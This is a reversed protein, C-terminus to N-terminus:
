HASVHKGWAWFFAGAVCPLATALLVLASPEPVVSQSVVIQGAPTSYNLTIAAFNADDASTGSSVFNILATGPLAASTDYSVLALGLTSGPGSSPLTVYYPPGTFVSDGGSFETTPFSAFSLPPGTGVGAFIYPYATTNESASTFVVGALGSLQLEISFDSVNVSSGSNNVLDVEFSGTTSSITQFNDLILDLNAGRSPAGLSLTLFVAAPIALGWCRRRHRSRFAECISINLIKRM